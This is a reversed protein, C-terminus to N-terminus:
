HLKITFAAQSSVTLNLVTSCNNVINENPNSSSTSQGALEGATLARGDPRGHQKETTTVPLSLVVRCPPAHAIGQVTWPIQTQLRPVESRLTFPKFGVDDAISVTGRM